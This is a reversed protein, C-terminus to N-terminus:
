LLRAQTGQVHENKSKRNRSKDVKSGESLVNKQYTILLDKEYSFSAYDLYVSHICSFYRVLTVVSLLFDRVNLGNFDILGTWLFM